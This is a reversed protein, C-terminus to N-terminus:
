LNETTTRQSELRTGLVKVGLGPYLDQSRPQPSESGTRNKKKTLDITM